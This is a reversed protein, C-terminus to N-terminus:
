AALLADGEGGFRRSVRYDEITWGHWRLHTGGVAKMWRGGLHCCV